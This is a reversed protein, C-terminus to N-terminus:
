HPVPPIHDPHLKLDILIPGKRRGIAAVAAALDSEGRVTVGEGGLAVAVPALDPWDFLSLSPDMQRDRYQVHEAGYGGDNCVIVVIDSGNRVATNFENLGGLMFGGDGAILVTPRGVSAAAAGIAEAMGFGIAAFGLTYVFNRPQRVPFLKWAEAIFRGVDTVVIRDEPIAENLALLAARIDVAGDPVKASYRPEHHWAALRDAMDVSRFGSPAVEAEDLWRIFLDAVLGPDGVLSAHPRANLGIEPRHADVQILRKDKLLSGNATTFRNLSAGFAIVCDCAAIADIAPATSLTGFVGLNFPEGAFLGSGRLTTALPAGIRQALRILADRQRPEVAGRGALVIPSRAAAIIGIANDLETGEPTAFPTTNVYEVSEGLTTEEWQFNAPMNLVVPRYELRAIRFALALDEAVTHPSRLQVFGAGVAEVLERQDVNQLHGRAAVDTDGALLVLPVRAKVAEALASISNTLGPGHTVTAVGVGGTVQAHGIAMLVAGAENAAAIYRGKRTQVYDNVMFLNADGILGFLTSVGRRALAAALAEFCKM